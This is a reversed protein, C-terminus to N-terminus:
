GVKEAVAELFRAFYEGNKKSSTILDEAEYPPIELVKALKLEGDMYTFFFKRGNHAVEWTYASDLEIQTTGDNVEDALQQIKNISANVMEKADKEAKKASELHNVADRYANRYVPLEDELESKYQERLLQKEYEDIERTATIKTQVGLLNQAMFLRAEDASAFKGLSSPVMKSEATFQIVPPRYNEIKKM